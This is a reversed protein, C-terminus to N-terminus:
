NSKNASLSEARMLYQQAMMENGMNKWTMGLFRNTMINNPDVAYSKEFYTLAKQFENKNGYVSGINNIADTYDAKLSFAKEFYFLASDPQSTNFLLNGYNNNIKPDNSNCSLANVFAIKSSDYEKLRMYALGMQDWSDAFYPTLHVSKKLYSIGENLIKNQDPQSKGALNSEKILYNGLYYNTRASNPASILGSRYLTYNNEWVNNRNITIGGYILVVIAVLAPAQKFNFKAICAIASFAIGFSPMFMLREGYQTGILTFINSSVSATIFFFMLAFGYLEKKVVGYIAIAFLSSLVVFALLFEVSSIGVVSLQPFSADFTLGYPVVIRFLYLGLYYIATTYREFSGLVKVLLNDSSSPITGIPVIGYVNSRILFYFVTIGIFALFVFINEKFKEDGFYYVLLPFVALLTISSEKCLLSLFFFLISMIVSFIKKGSLYDLLKNLALFGFLMALIEDVSKINAVVETHIPFSIFLLCALFSYLLNGKLIRKCFSFIVFALFAYLCVNMWHGIHANNPSFAWQKAFLLKPIPRYLEDSSMYSGYRYSTKFIEKVDGKQTSRNELISAYDDLAYDFNVTNFYLLGAIFAVIWVYYNSWNNNEKISNEKKNNVPAASFKEKRTLKKTEAM